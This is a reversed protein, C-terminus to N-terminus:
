RVEAHADGRLAARFHEYCRPLTFQERVTQLGARAIQQRQQANEILWELRNVWAETTDAFVGNQGDTILSTNQGIPHALVCVEGSMYVTAKLIGRALSDEVNFLPFLGIDMQLVERIMENQTYFPLMSYRVAEFRPLLRMNVGTGLLRLTIHDCRRFIQELAEWITYLNFLTSPSGIWGLVVNKKPRRLYRQQDFAEVQCPDPVVFRHANYPRAYQLGFPNDCTVADVTRLIDTLRGDTYAANAPLWMSDNLDYVIRASTTRRLADIMAWSGIRQIYVTDFSRALRVIRAERRRALQLNLAGLVRAVGLRALRGIPLTPHESVRMMWTHQRSIHQSVIGDAALLKQYITARIFGGPWANGAETIMLVRQPM